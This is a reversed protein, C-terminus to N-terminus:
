DGGLGKLSIPDWADILSGWEMDTRLISKASQGTVFIWLLACPLYLADHDPASQNDPGNQWVKTQSDWVPRIGRTKILYYYLYISKEGLNEIADNLAAQDFVPQSYSIYPPGDTEEALISLFDYRRQIISTISLLSEISNLDPEIEHSFHIDDAEQIKELLQVGSKVRFLREDLFSSFGPDAIEDQELVITKEIGLQACLFDLTQDSALGKEAKQINRLGITGRVEEALQEQTWGKKKRADKLVRGNISLIQHYKDRSMSKGKPINHSALKKLESVIVWDIESYVAIHFNVTIYVRMISFYLPYYAIYNIERMM